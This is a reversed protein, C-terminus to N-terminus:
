ASNLSLGDNLIDKIDESVETNMHYPDHNVELEDNERTLYKSFGDLIIAIFLGFTMFNLIYLLLTQYIITVWTDSYTTGLLVVGYWDDNTGILFTSM